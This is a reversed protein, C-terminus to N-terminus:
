FGVICFVSIEMSWCSTKGTKTDYFISSPFAFRATSLAQRTRGQDFTYTFRRHFYEFGESLYGIHDFAFAITFFNQYYWKQKKRENTLSLDLGDHTFFSPQFFYEDAFWVYKRFTNRNQSSVMDKAENQLLIYISAKSVQKNRIIVNKKKKEGREREGSIM